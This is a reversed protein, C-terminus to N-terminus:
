ASQPDTQQLQKFPAYPCLTAIELVHHGTPALGPQSSKLTPCSLFIWAHDLNGALQQRYEQNLNGSPYYWLNWNGLGYDQPHFRDDLGLYINFASASYGYDTLRHREGQSLAETGMLSVTLKPDLDSIYHQRAVYNTGGATVWAVQDNCVEIHDVPTQYRITGGGQIIADVITDVFGKFHFEPYYAGECYSWAVSTHTLLAVEEPPLAYDGSQGALITQLQPSLGVRDYLDQLTWRGKDLLNWYRPLRLWDYWHPDYWRIRQNFHHMDEALQKIADCYRNIPQVEQPFQNILRDRLNEWGLPIAFDVGPAIVRDICSPELSHFTVPRDLYRLFQDIEQEPGCQSIYHVNACFSYNGYDFTHCCGGALYHKELVVVRHGQRSLCAAAALGGLGAGLIVYDFVEM